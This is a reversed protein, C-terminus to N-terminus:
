STGIPVGKSFNSNAIAPPTSLRYDFNFATSEQHTLEMGTTHWCVYHHLRIHIKVPKTFAPDM